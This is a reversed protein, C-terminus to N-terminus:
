GAGAPAAAGAGPVPGARARASPDALRGLWGGAGSWPRAVWTEVSGDPLAACSRLVAGNAAAVQWAAACDVPGGRLVPAAAALAALDAAARAGHVDRVVTVVALAAGLALTVVAIGAVTLITASGNERRARVGEPTAGGGSPHRWRTNV